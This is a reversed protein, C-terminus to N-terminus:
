KVTVELLYALGTQAADVNVDVLLLDTQNANALDNRLGAGHQSSPFATPTTLTWGPDVTGM